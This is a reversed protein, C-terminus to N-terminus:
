GDVFLDIMATGACCSRRVPWGGTVRPANDDCLLLLLVSSVADTSMGRLIGPRCFVRCSTMDPHPTRVAKAAAPLKRKKADPGEAGCVVRVSNDACTHGIRVCRVAEAGYAALM